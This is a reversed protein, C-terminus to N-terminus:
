NHPRLELRPMLQGTLENGRADWAMLGNPYNQSRALKDTVQRLARVSDPSEPNWTFVRRDAYFIVAMPNKIRRDPCLFYGFKKMTQLTKTKVNRIGPTAHDKSHVPCVRAAHDIFEQHIMSKPKAVKEEPKVIKYGALAGQSAGLALVMMAVHIKKM